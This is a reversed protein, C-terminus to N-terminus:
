KTYRSHVGNTKGGDVELPCGAAWPVDCLLRPMEVQALPVDGDPVEFIVEDYANFLFYWNPHAREIACAGHFMIDRATSQVVNEVIKGGFYKEPTEYMTTAAFLETVAKKEMIGTDRNKFLRFGPLEHPNYYTLKRGSELAITHTPDHLSASARMASHHYRWLDVLKFNRERFEGVLQVARAESIKLNGYMPKDATTIFKDPGLGYGLGLVCVKALQRMGPNDKKLNTGDYWLVFKAYAQYIDGEKRVYDLFESNGALWQAIRAEIQSYDYIMFKCGPRPILMGRIDVGFVKAKPINLPNFKRDTAAEGTKRSTSASVRGTSCGHYVISFRLIDEDDILKLLNSVRSYHPIASAHDLRAQIFEHKDKNAEVWALMAPDDRKLSKPVDEIGVAKAHKRLEPASGAKKGEAVWPMKQEADEIVQHLKNIGERVAARDVRIGRWGAERNSRSIAREFDTWQSGFKRWLEFCVEADVGAYKLWTQRTADDLDAYRVGDMSARVDKSLTRGLLYKSAGALNRPARLYAALDATCVWEFHRDPVLGLEQLRALVAGDFSANHAVLTVGDLRSWDFEVPDGVFEIHNGDKDDGFIAVMYADFRSDHTYEYVTQSKLGYDNKSDYATEFDCACYREPTPDM